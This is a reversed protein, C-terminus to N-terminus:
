PELLLEDTEGDSQEHSTPAGAAGIATRIGTLTANPIEPLDLAGSEGTSRWRKAKWKARWRESSQRNQPPSRKSSNNMFFSRFASVSIMIVAISCEQQQWFALWVIDVSGGELKIAAMRIVAVIAMILSLCLSIAVGFKQQAKIRTRRLMIIPISVLLGDSVIDLSTTIGTDRLVRYTTDPTSCSIMGETTFYPCTLWSVAVCVLGALITFVIVFNCLLRLDRVRTVLRRFFVAFALKVPIIVLWWLTSAANEEKSTTPIENLVGFILDPEAGHLLITLIDYQQGIAAFALGTAAILFIVAFLLLYDDALFRQMVRIRIYTRIIYTVIAVGFLAATVGQSIKAGSARHANRSVINAAMGIRPALLDQDSM